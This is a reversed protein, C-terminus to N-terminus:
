NIVVSEIKYSYSLSEPKNREETISRQFYKRFFSGASLIKPAFRTSKILDKGGPAFTLILICIVWNVFIGILIGFVLGFIRDVWGLFAFHVIKSIFFAILAVVVAVLLFIIIFSVINCLTENAFPLYSAVQRYTRAAIWIGGILAIIGFLGRILGKILGYVAGIIIFAIIVLDLWHM